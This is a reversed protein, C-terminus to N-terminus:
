YHASDIENNSEELHSIGYTVKSGLVYSRESFERAAEGNPSAWGTAGRFSDFQVARVGVRFKKLPQAVVLRFSEMSSLTIVPNNWMVAAGARRATTRWRANRLLM